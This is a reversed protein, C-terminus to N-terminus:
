YTGSMIPFAFNKIYKVTLLLFIRKKFFIHINKNFFQLFRNAVHLAMTLKKQTM